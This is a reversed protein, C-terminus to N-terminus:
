RLCYGWKRLDRMLTKAYAGDYPGFDESRARSFFGRRVGDALTAEVKAHNGVLCADAAWAAFVGRAESRQSRQAVFVKWWEVADARVAAPHDPTVDVFRPPEWRFLAIPEGSAAYSTYLYPFREDRARFLVDGDFREVVAGGNGFDQSGVIGTAVDVVEVVSCCHAGGTWLWLVVAPTPRGLSRLEVTEVGLDTMLVCALGRCSRPLPLDRDLVAKGGRTVHLHLSRISFRPAVGTVGFRVKATYAGVTATEFRDAPAGLVTAAGALGAVAFAVLIALRRM